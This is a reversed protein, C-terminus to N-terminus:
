PVLPLANRAVQLLAQHIAEADEAGVQNIVLGLLRLPDAVENRRVSSHTTPGRRVVGPMRGPQSPSVGTLALLLRNAAVQEADNAGLNAVRDDATPGARVHLRRCM